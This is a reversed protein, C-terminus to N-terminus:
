ATATGTNVNSATLTYTGPALGSLTATATVPKSYSNPGTVMIQAPNSPLGTVTVTISGRVAETTPQCAAVALILPLLCRIFLRV